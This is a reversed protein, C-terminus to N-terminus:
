LYWYTGLGCRQDGPVPGRGGGINLADGLGIRRGDLEISGDEHLVATNPLVLVASGDTLCGARNRTLRGGNFASNQLDNPRITLLTYDSSTRAAVEAYQHSTGTDTFKLDSARTAFGDSTPALQTPSRFSDALQQELACESGEGCKRAISAWASADGTVARDDELRIPVVHVRESMEFVLRPQGDLVDFWASLEVFSQGPSTIRYTNCNFPQVQETACDATTDQVQPGAAIRTGSRLPSIIALVVLPVLAIAVVATVLLPRRRMQRQPRDARRDGAFQVLAEETRRSFESSMVPTNM